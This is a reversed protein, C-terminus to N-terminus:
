GCPLSHTRGTSCVSDLGLVEATYLLLPSLCAPSKPPSYTTRSSSDTHEGVAHAIHFLPAEIHHNLFFITPLVKLVLFMNQLFLIIEYVNKERLKKNWQYFFFLYNNKGVQFQGVLGVHKFSEKMKWLWIKKYHTSGANM